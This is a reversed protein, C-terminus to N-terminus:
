NGAHRGIAVAALGLLLHAAVLCLALIPRKNLLNLTELGFTSFTTLGGCFGVALLPRNDLLWSASAGGRTARAALYGILLCGLVNVALTGAPARGRGLLAVAAETTAWRLVAGVAGGVAVLLAAAAPHPDTM